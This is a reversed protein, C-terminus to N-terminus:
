PLINTKSGGLIAAPLTAAPDRPLTPFKGDRIDELEKLARDYAKEQEDTSKALRKGLQFAAIDRAYGTALAAPLIYGSTYTDVKACAAAIEEAVPDTPTEGVPTPLISRTRVEGIQESTLAANLQLATLTTM